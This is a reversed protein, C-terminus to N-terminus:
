RRPQPVRPPRQRAHCLDALVRTFNKSLLAYLVPNVANNIYYFCLVCARAEASYNTSYLLWLNYVHYPLVCLAFSTVVAVLLRIIRRRRLLIAMNSQSLTHCRAYAARRARVDRCRCTGNVQAGNIVGTKVSRASRYLPQRSGCNKEEVGNAVNKNSQLIANGTCNHCGNEDNRPAPARAAEAEPTAGIELSESTTQRQSSNTNHSESMSSAVVHEVASSRWLVMAIRIYVFAMISLPLVYGIVLLSWVHITPVIVDAFVLCYSKTETEKYEYMNYVPLSTLASILWVCIAIVGRKFRSLQFEPTPMPHLIVVYRELAIVCLFLTSAAYSMAQVFFMLKCM